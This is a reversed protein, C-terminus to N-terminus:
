ILFRKWNLFYAAQTFLNEYAVIYYWRRENYNYYQMNHTRTCKVKLSLSSSFLSMFNISLVWRFPIHMMIYPFMYIALNPLHESANLSLEKTGDHSAVHLIRTCKLIFLVRSDFCTFLLSVLVGNSSPLYDVVSSSDSNKNFLFSRFVLLDIHAGDM